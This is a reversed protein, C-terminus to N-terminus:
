QPKRSLTWKRRSVLKRRLAWSGIQERIIIKQVIWLVISGATVMPIPYPHPFRPILVHSNFVHLDRPPEGSLRPFRLSMLNISQLCLALINHITSRKQVLTRHANRASIEVWIVMPSPNTHEPSSQLSRLDRKWKTVFHFGSRWLRRNSEKVVWNFLLILEFDMFNERIEGM